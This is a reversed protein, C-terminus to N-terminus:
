VSLIGTNGPWAVLSPKRIPKVEDLEWQALLDRISWSEEVLLM